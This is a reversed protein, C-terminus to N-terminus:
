AAQVRAQFEKYIQAPATAKVFRMEWTTGDIWDIYLVPTNLRLEKVSSYEITLAQSGNDAVFCTDDFALSCAVPEGGEPNLLIEYSKGSGAPKKSKSKKEPKSKANGESGDEDIEGDKGVTFFLGATGVICLSIGIILVGEPLHRLFLIFGGFLFAMVSFIAAIAFVFKSSKRMLKVGQFM